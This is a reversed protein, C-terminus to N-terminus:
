AKVSEQCYPCDRNDLVAFPDGMVNTDTQIHYSPHDRDEDHTGEPFHIKRAKVNPGHFEWLSDGVKMRFSKHYWETGEGHTTERFERCQRELDKWEEYNLNVYIDAIASAGKKEEAM